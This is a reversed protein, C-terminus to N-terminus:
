AGAEESPGLRAQFLAHVAVVRSDIQGAAERLGEAAELTAGLAAVHAVNEAIGEAARLSHRFHERINRSARVLRLCRNLVVPTVVVLVIALTAIWIAAVGANM